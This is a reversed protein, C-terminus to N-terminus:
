QLYEAESDSVLCRSLPCLILSESRAAKEAVRRRARRAENRTGGRFETFLYFRNLAAQRIFSASETRHRNLNRRRSDFISLRGRFLRAGAAVLRTRTQPALSESSDTGRALRANHINRPERFGECRAHKQESM